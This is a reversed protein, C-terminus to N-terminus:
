FISIGRATGSSRRLHTAELPVRLFNSFRGELIFFLFILRATKSHLVQLETTLTANERDGWIIDGYSTEREYVLSAM